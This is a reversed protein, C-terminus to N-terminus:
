PRYISVFKMFNKTHEDDDDDDDDDGDGLGSRLQFGEETMSLIQRSMQEYDATCLKDASGSRHVDGDGGGTATAGSINMMEILYKCMKSLSDSLKANNKADRALVTERELLQKLEPTFKKRSVMLGPLQSLSELFPGGYDPSKLGHSLIDISRRYLSEAEDLLSEPNRDPALEKGNGDKICRAAIRQLILALMHSMFEEFSLRKEQDCEHNLVNELASRAFEEAKDYEEAKDMYIEVLSSITMQLKFDAPGKLCCQMEYAEELLAIAESQRGLDKWERAVGGFIHVKKDLFSDNPLGKSLDLAIRHEAFCGSLKGQLRYLKSLSLHYLSQRHRVHLEVLTPESTRAQKRIVALAEGAEILIAHARQLFEVVIPVCPTEKEFVHEVICIYKECIYM